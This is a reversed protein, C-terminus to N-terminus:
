ASRGEVLTKQRATKTEEGYLLEGSAGHVEQHASKQERACFLRTDYLARCVGNQNSAIGFNM